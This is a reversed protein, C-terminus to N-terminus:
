AKEGEAEAEADAEPKKKVDSKQIPSVIVKVREDSWVEALADADMALLADIEKLNNRAYLAGNKYSIIMDDISMPQGTQQNLVQYGPNIEKIRSYHSVDIVNQILKNAFHNRWYTLIETYSLQRDIPLLTNDM